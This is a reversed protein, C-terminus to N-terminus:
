AEVSRNIELHSNLHNPSRLLSRDFFFLFFFSGVVHAKVTRLALYTFCM